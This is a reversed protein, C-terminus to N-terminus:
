SKAALHARKIAMKQMWADAEEFSNFRYVGPDCVRFGSHRFVSRGVKQQHAASVIKRRGVTKGIREEVNVVSHTQPDSNEDM